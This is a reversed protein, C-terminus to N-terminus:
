RIIYAQCPRFDSLVILKTRQELRMFGDNFPYDFNIPRLTDVRCAAIANEKRAKDIM